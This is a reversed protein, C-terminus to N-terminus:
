GEEAVPHLPVVLGSARRRRTAGLVAAGVVVHGHVSLARAAEELTAGTTVLDDVLVVRCPVVALARMALRQNAAREHASLGAQDAVHRAPALLHRAVVGGGTARAAVRALRLAHDYGRARVAARASPVPSLVVPAPGLLPTVVRALAEGLPASLRLGGREKHTLLLRKLPGDYGALAHVRPLGPPCPDPRWPGLPPAALVARCGDCLATGRAGCGACARPLVLDLLADLV